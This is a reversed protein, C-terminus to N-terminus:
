GQARRRIVAFGGVFSAVVLAAGAAVDWAFGDEDATVLGADGTSPPRIVGGGSPQTPVATPPVATAAACQVQVTATGSVGGSTANITATGGSSSPATFITLISGNSTTAQGPSVTGLTTSVNVLAGDVPTGGASTRVVVTIFSSGNCNVSNPVAQVTVSGPTGQTSTATPTATGSKTNVFTCEVRESDDSLDISVRRATLDVSSDGGSIEDCQIATLTWGSKTAETVTYSGDSNCPFGQEDNDGLTFTDDCDSGTGSITFEFDESSTAGSADKIIVINDDDSSGSGGCEIDVEDSSSGQEVTVTFTAGDECDAGLSVTVQTLDNANVTVTAGDGTDAEGDDSCNPNCDTVTLEINTADGDSLDATVVINATPNTNNLHITVSATDGSDFSEDADISTIDAHATPTFNGASFLLFGAAIFVAL